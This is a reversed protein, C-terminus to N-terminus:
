YLFGVNPRRAADTVIAAASVAGIGPLSRLIDCTRATSARAKILTAIEADLEAIQREVLTLRAKTQRKLVSMDQIQKRNRLRTRDKVLGSRAM